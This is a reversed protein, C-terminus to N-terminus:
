GHPIVRQGAQLLLAKLLQEPPISPRVTDAYIKDFDATLEALAKDAMVRIPRLPHDKPVFSEPSLYVFLAETKTELGRM